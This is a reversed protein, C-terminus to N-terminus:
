DKTLEYPGDTVSKLLGTTDPDPRFMFLQETPSVGLETYSLSPLVDDTQVDDMKMKAAVVGAPTLDGAACAAELVEHMLRGMGYGLTFQNTPSADPYETMSAEHLEAGIETDFLTSPSGAVFHDYLYAGAPTGFVSATYSPWSGGIPLDSGLSQLVSAVAATQTPVGSIFFADAGKGVADNVQATLDSDTAKIKYELLNLGYREASEELGHFATEGYEGELYISALTAGDELLGEEHMYQTVIQTDVDYNAAPIMIQEVGALSPTGASVITLKDDRKIQDLNAAVHSGGVYNQFALINPAMQPYLSVANQVNYAHDRIDLKVEFRGCVGGDANARDWYLQTGRNQDTNLGAFPGTLDGMIGLTITDGSIGVGTKVGDVDSTETTAGKSSCAVLVLGITVIAAGAALPKVRTFQVTM